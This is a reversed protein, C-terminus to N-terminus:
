RRLASLLDTKAGLPPLRLQSHCGVGAAAEAGLGAAIYRSLMSSRCRSCEEARQLIQCFASAATSPERQSGGGWFVSGGWERGGERGGESM